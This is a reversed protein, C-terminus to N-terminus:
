NVDFNEDCYTVSTGYFREIQNNICCLKVLESSIDAKM